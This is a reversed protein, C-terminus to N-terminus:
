KASCRDAAPRLAAHCRPSPREGARGRGAGVAALGPPLGPRIRLGHRAAAAAPRGVRHGRGGGVQAAHGRAPHHGAGRGGRRLRASPSQRVLPRDEPQRDAAQGTPQAVFLRGRLRGGGGTHGPAASRGADRRRQRHGVDAHRRHAGADPPAAAPRVGGARSGRARRLCAARHGAGLHQRQGLPRGARARCAAMSAVAPLRLAARLREAAGDPGVEEAVQLFAVPGLTGSAPHEWRLLAEFGSLRGTALEVLPQYVVALQGEDVARRVEGELRLRESVAAHLSADFLSYRARGASKAKYMATDADRLVDDPSDYGFASFTIGISASAVHDVGGLTFPRELSKMLREALHVAEREHDIHEALVAFEDGGLRAVVDGPRLNEQIRRSLQSLLEDGAKHGLSDNVLKFRDFDLFMVAYRHSSDVKCRQVAGALCELFRRRNPLGTLSDHFALHHLGAEARRRATVDQVQLILCATSAGPETFFSCHLSAWIEDGERGVCRMERAFGQFGDSRAHTLESELASRDDAQMFEGFAHGVLAEDPRDLLHRLALNAQLVRGDFDLLAMGISAHSFAAHFRRESARLEQLHREAAASERAVLAAERDAAEAHAERMAETAEQQRFYFHLSVLLMLLLPVMVMLVAIGSQRYTLFLLTAVSASGAYALGVWRYDSVTSALQWMPEGRKLRPVAAMLTASLLFYGFAFLMTAALLSAAGGWASGELWALTLALLTGMLNMVVAAIAPSVIRSTWRKSTRYSGISAEGAAVLTAAAPGQLLLVLFIFIEGVVLSNRTGPVRVPFLGALMALAVACAIQLWDMWGAGRLEYVSVALTAVGAATALWWYLTTRRNYDPM